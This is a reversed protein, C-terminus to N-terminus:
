VLMATSIGSPDYALASTATAIRAEEEWGRYNMGTSKDNIDALEKWIQLMQKAINDIM